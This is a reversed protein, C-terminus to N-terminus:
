RGNSAARQTGRRLQAVIQQPQRRRVVRRLRDRAPLRAPVRAPVEPHGVEATPAARVVPQGRRLARAQTLVVRAVGAARVVIPGGRHPVEAVPFSRSYSRSRSFSRGGGRRSEVIDPAFSFLFVVLVALISFKQFKRKM